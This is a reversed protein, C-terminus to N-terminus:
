REERPRCDEVVTEIYLLLREQLYAFVSTADEYGMAEPILARQVATLGLYSLAMGALTQVEKMLDFAKLSLTYARELFVVLEDDSLIARESKIQECRGWTQARVNFLVKRERVEGSANQEGEVPEGCGEKEEGGRVCTQSYALVAQQVFAFLNPCASAEKAALLLEQDQERVLLDCCAVGAVRKVQELLGSRYLGDYADILACLAADYSVGGESEQVEEVLAFTPVALKITVPVDHEAEEADQRFAELATVGPECLRIGQRRDINGERDVIEWSLALALEEEADWEEEDWEEEEEEGEVAEVPDSGTETPKFVELVEVGPKGLWRGTGRVPVGAGDVLAYDLYGAVTAFTVREEESTAELIKRHNQITAMYVIEDCGAPGYAYVALRPYIGRMLRRTLNQDPPRLPVKGLFHM